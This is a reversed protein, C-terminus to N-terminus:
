TIQHPYSLKSINRLIADYVGSAELFKRLQFEIPMIIATISNEAVTPNGHSIVESYEKNILYSIPPSFLDKDKLYKLLLYESEITKFPNQLWINMDKLRKIMESADLNQLINQMWNSCTNLITEFLSKQIFLVDKRNYNSQSHLQLTFELEAQNISDIFDHKLNLDIPKSTDLVEGLKEIQVINLSSINVENNVIFSNESILSIPHQAILHQKFIKISYFFNRCDNQKCIHVKLSTGHVIKIHNILQDIEKLSTNCCHCKFM